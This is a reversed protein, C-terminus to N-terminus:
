AIHALEDLPRLNHRLPFGEFFTPRHELVRKLLHDPSIPLLLFLNGHTARKQLLNGSLDLHGDFAPIEDTVEFFVTENKKAFALAM